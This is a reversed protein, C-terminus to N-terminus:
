GVHNTEVEPFIPLEFRTAYENLLATFDFEELARSFTEDSLKGTNGLIETTFSLSPQAPPPSNLYKNIYMEVIPENGGKKLIAALYRAVETESTISSPVIGKARLHKLARSQQLRRSLHTIHFIGIKGFSNPTFFSIVDKVHLNHGIYKAAFTIRSLMLSKGAYVGWKLDHPELSFTLAHNWDVSGGSEPLMNINHFWGCAYIKEDGEKLINIVDKASIQRNYYGFLFEDSDLLAVYKCNKELATFLAKNAHMHHLHDYYGDYKLILIKNKYTELIALFEVETSGCDIVILNHYGVIGAHYEIWHTILEPDDKVKLIIKLYTDKGQNYYLGEGRGFEVWDRYAEEYTPFKKGRSKEYIDKSFDKGVYEVDSDLEAINRRDPHDLQFGFPDIVRPKAPTAGLRDERVRSTEGLVRHSVLSPSLVYHNLFPLRGTFGSTGRISVSIQSNPLEKNVQDISLSYALIRWDLHLGYGDEGFALLLKQAGSRSIFYCDTGVSQRREEIRRLSENLRTFVRGNEPLEPLETRDNAFVIDFDEPLVISELGSWDDIIADDELIVAWEDSGALFVEWARAHSLTCGLAGKNRVMPEHRTVSVTLQDPLTSGPVADIRRQRVFDYKRLAASIREYKEEDQRLNIIFANIMNKGAEHLKRDASSSAPDGDAESKPALEVGFVEVQALHLMGTGFLEIRIFRAPVPDPFTLKLPNGDVGGFPVNSFRKHLLTWVKGNLSAWVSLNNARHAHPPARNFLVVESVLAFAGLDVMWWPHVEEATHFAYDGTIRGNVANAADEQPIQSRSWKSVSSQSASKYLALNTVEGSPIIKSLVQSLPFIQEVWGLDHAELWLFIIANANGRQIYEDLLAPVVLSPSEYDLRARLKSNPELWSEPPLVNPLRLMSKVLRAGKLVPHFIADGKTEDVQDPHYPPWWDYNSMDVFTALPRENISLREIEAGIIAENSPWTTKGDPFVVDGARLRQLHDKRAMQLIIAFEWSFVAICCLRGTFQLADSYYPKAMNKWPWYEIPTRVQEGVFELREAQMTRVIPAIDVNVAVDYESAVIYKYEPYKNIFHYLTYDTNYWFSNGKPYQYFGEAESIDETIRLVKDHSIGTVPGHTEDAVVFVADTGARAQLRRFQSEVFEDWFHVKFIVAYPTEANDQNV